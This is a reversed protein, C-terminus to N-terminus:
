GAGPLDVLETRVAEPQDDLHRQEVSHCQRQRGERCQRRDTPAPARHRDGEAGRRRRPRASDHEPRPAGVIPGLTTEYRADDVSEIRKRLGIQNQPYIMDVEGARFANIQSNSDPIPIFVVSVSAQEGWYKKNPVLTVQRDSEFDGVLMPGSGIPKKTKPDCICRTWVKNFNQGELIHKPLVTTSTSAWLDRYPAFPEKFQMQFETPSIVNFASIKDYGNRSWVNNDPNMITDYTFKFDDATIPMGDSWVADPRISCGVTFPSVTTVTCDKSFIWPEYTFDPLLRYGRALVPGAIMGTWQSNGDILMNNLTSPFEEAGVTITPSGAKTAATAPVVAASAAALAGLTAISLAALWRRAWRVEFRQM